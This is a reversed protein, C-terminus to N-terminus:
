DGTKHFYGQSKQLERYVLSTEFKFHDEQRQRGFQQNCSKNFATITSILGSTKM